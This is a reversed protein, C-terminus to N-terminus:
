STRRLSIYQFPTRVCKIGHLPTKMEAYCSYCLRLGGIVPSQLEECAQPRLLGQQARRLSCKQSAPMAGAYHSYEDSGIRGSMCTNSILTLGIHKAKIYKTHCTDMASVILDKMSGLHMHRCSFSIMRYPGPLRGM